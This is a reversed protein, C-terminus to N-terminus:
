FVEELEELSIKNQSLIFGIRRDLESEVEENSVTINTDKEAHVLLVKGEILEDLLRYRLITAELSDPKIL